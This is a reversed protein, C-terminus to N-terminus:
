AVRNNSRAKKPLAADLKSFADRYCEPCYGHSFDVDWQEKFYAELRSWSSAGDRIKKCVSCIPIMRKLEMIESFDEIVLLALEQGDFAFPSATVQAFLDVSRGALNLELHARQRVVRGGGFVKGVANRVVCDSCAPGRGCGRPSDCANLCGLVEGSRRKLIADDRAVLLEAAAANYAQVRMDGDVVFIMSPLADFVHQLMPDPFRADRTM